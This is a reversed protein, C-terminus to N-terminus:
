CMQIKKSINRYFNIYFITVRQLVVLDRWPIFIFKEYSELFVDIKSM